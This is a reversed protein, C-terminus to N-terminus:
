VSMGGPEELAELVEVMYGRQKLYFAATLGCPGAGIVAVKKKSTVPAEKAPKARAAAYSLVQDNVFRKLHKISIPEDLDARRCAFECPRVCVRGCIGPLPNKRAIIALSDYYNGGRIADIYSPIDLHAPCAEICPATVIAHYVGRKVPVRDSVAKHFVEPMLEMLKLLANMSTHGLECMSSDRIVCALRQIFELDEERGMGNAIDRLKDAVIKTGVRCPICYGCSEQQVKEVYARVMDIVPADPDFIFFGDWGIFAQIRNSNGFNLIQPFNDQISGEDLNRNNILKDQWYGIYIKAM